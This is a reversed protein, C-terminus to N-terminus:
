RLGEPGGSLDIYRTIRKNAKNGVYDDEGAWKAHRQCLMRGDVEWYEELM